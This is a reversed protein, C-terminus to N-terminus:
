RRPSVDLLHDISSVTLSSYARVVPKQSDPGLSSLRRKVHSSGKSEFDVSTPPSM